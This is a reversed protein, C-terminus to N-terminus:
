SVLWGFWVGPRSSFLRYIWYSRSIEDAVSHPTHKAIV